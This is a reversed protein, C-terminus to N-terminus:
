KSDFLLVMGQHSGLATGHNGPFVSIVKIGLWDPDGVYGPMVSLLGRGNPHRVAQRIPQLTSGDAVLTMAQRMLDICRTMPLLARVDAANLLRLKRTRAGTGYAASLAGGTMTPM